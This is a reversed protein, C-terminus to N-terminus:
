IGDNSFKTACVSVAVLFIRQRNEKHSQPKVFINEYKFSDREWRDELLAGM